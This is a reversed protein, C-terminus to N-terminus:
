WSLLNKTYPKGQRPSSQVVCIGEMVGRFGRSWSAKSYIIGSTRLVHFPFSKVYKQRQYCVCTPLYGHAVIHPGFAGVRGAGSDQVRVRVM